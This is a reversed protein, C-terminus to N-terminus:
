ACEGNIVVDSRAILEQMMSAPAPKSISPKKFWVVDRVGLSELEQKLADMLPYMTFEGNDLRHGWGDLFGVSKGALSSPRLALQSSSTELEGSPDLVM